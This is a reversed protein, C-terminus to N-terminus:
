RFFHDANSADVPFKSEIACLLRELGKVEPYYNRKCMGRTEVIIEGITMFTVALLLNKKYYLFVLAVIAFPM